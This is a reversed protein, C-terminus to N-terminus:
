YHNRRESFGLIKKYAGKKLKEETSGESGGRIRRIHWWALLNCGWYLMLRVVFLIIVDRKLRLGKLHTIDRKTLHQLLAPTKNACIEKRLKSELKLYCFWFSLEYSQWGHTSVTCLVNISGILSRNKLPYFLWM